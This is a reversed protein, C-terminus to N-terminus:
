SAPAVYRVRVKVKHGPRVRMLEQMFAGVFSTLDICGISGPEAGGHLFFGGRGFTATTEFPHITLRHTGWARSYAGDSDMDLLWSGPSGQVAVIERPDIWYVGEPIPGGPSRQRERSYDFTGADTRRGSVAPVSFSRGNGVLRLQRGDFHIEVPADALPSDGRERAYTDLEQIRSEIWARDANSLAPHARPGSRRNPRHGLGPPIHYTRLWALAARIEPGTGSGLRVTLERRVTDLDLPPQAAEQGFITGRVVHQGLQLQLVYEAIGKNGASSQLQLLIDNHTIGGTSKSLKSHRLRARNAMDAVRKAKGLSRPSLDM